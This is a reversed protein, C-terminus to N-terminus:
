PGIIKTYHEPGGQYGCAEFLRSSSGNDPLVRAYVTFEQALRSRMADESALLLRQGLGLGTLAPDLYLSVELQKAALQDFRICGVALQGVEAVFLWRDDAALTRAMWNQHDALAIPAQTGSVARVSPNNRWAHLQPADEMGAPRLCLGDGLLSLAVRHAGRGDVLQASNEALLRRAAPDRLLEELVMSLSPLNSFEGQEDFRASRLVQMKSLEPVVALQNAALVLGITPVGICCREWAAGGGAGIQLDHRAFFASLNAEDLSLRTAPMDACAAQLQALYPNVSTSMVEIRGTFGVQRCTKLVKVSAGGPDTGGMFIGLSRVADHHCYRPADRYASSLLAYRPGALMRAKGRLVRAYKAHPDPVLNQDLVLDADLDRDALDDIVMLRCGLGQRVRAHWDQDFSYHDLVLWDPARSYLAAVTEAADQSSPVGAWQRHSADAAVSSTNPAPLWHLGVGDRLSSRLVHAAVDDLRRVVLCVEAGLEVLAEALSLCRRLHGTGMAASADVRVAVVPVGSM